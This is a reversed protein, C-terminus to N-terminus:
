ELFVGSSLNCLSLVVADMDVGATDLYRGTAAATGKISKGANKEDSQEIRQFLSTIPCSTSSSWNGL